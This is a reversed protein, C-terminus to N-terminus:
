SLDWKFKGYATQWSFVLGDPCIDKMIVVKTTITHLKWRRLYFGKRERELCFMIMVATQSRFVRSTGSRFENQKIRSTERNLQMEVFKGVWILPRRQAICKSNFASLFTSCYIRVACIRKSPSQLFRTSNTDRLGVVATGNWRFVRRLRVATGQAVEWGDSKALFHTRTKASENSNSRPSRRMTPSPFCREPVTLIRFNRSFRRCPGRVRWIWYFFFRQGKAFRLFPFELHDTTKNLRLTETKREWVEYKMPLHKWKDDNVWFILAHDTCSSCVEM